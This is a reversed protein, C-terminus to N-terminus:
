VFFGGVGCFLKLFLIWLNWVVFDVFDMYLIWLDVCSFDMFDVFAFDFISDMGCFLIWWFCDFILNM